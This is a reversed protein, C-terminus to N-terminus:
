AKKVYVKLALLLVLVVGLYGLSNGPEPGSAVSVAMLLCFVIMIIACLVAWYRCGSM